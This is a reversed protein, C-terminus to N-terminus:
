WHHHGGGHSGGSNSSRVSYHNGGLLNNLLGNGNGIANGNLIGSLLSTRNGSAVASGNLIGLGGLDVSPSVNLLGGGSRHGGFGFGGAHAATAASVSFVAVAALKVIMKM